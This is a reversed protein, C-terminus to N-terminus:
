NKNNGSLGMCSSERLPFFCILVIVTGYVTLVCSSFYYLFSSFPLLFFRFFFFYSLIMRSLRFYAFRTLRCCSGLRATEDHPSPFHRRGYDM